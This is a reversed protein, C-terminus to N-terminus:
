EFIIPGSFDGNKTWLEPMIKLRIGRWSAAPIPFQKPNSNEKLSNPATARVYETAQLPTRWRLKSQINKVNKQNL